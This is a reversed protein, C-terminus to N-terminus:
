LEVVGIRNRLVTEIQREVDAIRAANSAAMRKRLAAASKPITLAAVYNTPIRSGM